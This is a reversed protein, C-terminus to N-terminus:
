RMLEGKEERRHNWEESAYKAELVRVDELLEAPPEFKELRIGLGTEFGSKFAQQVEEMSAPEGILENIAVARTRFAQRAREKVAESPYVFLEFLRNEDLQLPISGHQLIIGQKRTQASGAAKRGEVTLEHWSPEEFCVASSEKSPKKEAALQAQIGLNRYGELLGLSIVLYAEKVSKPMSPHHEPIVVSYTLEQDHLVAKGGTQRRVLPIGMQAARELDISGNLKQFFGVSIGAPSWGYFRLVPKMGTKRQWNMLAEDMAMNYAPTCLGSEMYGWTEELM